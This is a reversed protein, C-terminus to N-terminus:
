IRKAIMAARAAFIKIIFKLTRDPEVDKAGGAIAVCCRKDYDSM